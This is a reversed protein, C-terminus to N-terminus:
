SENPIDVEGSYVKRIETVLFDIFQSSEARPSFPFNQATLKEPLGNIEVKEICKLVAPLYVADVRSSWSSALPEGSEDKVGKLGNVRTLLASPKAEFESAADEADEFAFVQEMTLPESLTVKGEFHKITCDIIKM